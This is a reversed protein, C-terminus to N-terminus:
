EQPVVHHDTDYAILIEREKMTFLCAGEGKIMLRGEASLGLIQVGQHLLLVDGEQTLMAPIEESVYIAYSGLQYGKKRM